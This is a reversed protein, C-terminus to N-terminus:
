VASGHRHRLARNAVASGGDARHSRVPPPPGRGLPDSPGQAALHRSGTAAAAANRPSGVLRRRAGRTGPVRPAQSGDVGIGRPATGRGRHGCTRYPSCGKPPARVADSGAQGPRHGIRPRIRRSRVGLSGVDTRRFLRGARAAAFGFCNLLGPGAQTTPPQEAGMGAGSRVAVGFRRHSCDCDYGGTTRSVM